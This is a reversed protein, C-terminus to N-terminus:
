VSSRLFPSARRRALLRARRYLPEYSPLQRHQPILVRTSVLIRYEEGSVLPALIRPHVTYIL